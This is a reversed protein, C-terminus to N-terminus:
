SRARLTPARIAWAPLGAIGLMSILSSQSCGRLPGRIGREWKHSVVAHVCSTSRRLIGLGLTGSPRSLAM